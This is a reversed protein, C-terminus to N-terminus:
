EVCVPRVAFGTSELGATGWCLGDPNSCLTLAINTVDEYVGNIESTWYELEGSWWSVPLFIYKSRDSRNYFFYGAVGYGSADAEKRECDCNNALIIWEEHSPTYWKEGWAITAIDHAADLRQGAPWFGSEPMWAKGYEITAGWRYINTQFGAPSEEGVNRTAFYLKRGDSTQLGLDVCEKPLTDPKAIAGTHIPNDPDFANIAEVIQPMFDELTPYVSADQERKELVDVLYRVMMFGNGEDYGLAQNVGSLGHSIMYRITSARVLTEYMMTKATGYAMSTMIDSVRGYVETVKDSIAPWNADVLPNCYPHSFEHVILGIDGGFRVMGENQMFSGIVPTLLFTGDLRKLSIGNNHSGIMFSLIIRSAVKENKGYYEDFWAYDLNCVTKFAAIAQQQYEKTSEFWTRFNTSTYFDNIAALMDVKQQQTWRDFSVNSGEFYDSEFVLEGQENFILQNAYGTVADYGVGCSRYQKALLVAQHYKASAFYEDASNAVSTVYCSNYEEAGALRFILGMLEVTESFYPETNHQVDSGQPMDPGQPDGPEQPESPEQPQETDPIDTDQNMDEFKDCSVVTLMLCVLIVMLAHMWQEFAYARTTEKPNVEKMNLQMAKFWSFIYLKEYDAFSVCFLQYM